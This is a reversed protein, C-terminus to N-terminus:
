FNDTSSSHQQEQLLRELERRDLQIVISKGDGGRAFPLATNRVKHQRKPRSKPRPSKHNAQPRYNRHENSDSKSSSGNGSRPPPTNAGYIRYIANNETLSKVSSTKTSKSDLSEEEESLKQERELAKERMQDEHIMSCYTFYLRKRYRWTSNYLAAKFKRNDNIFNYVPNTMLRLYLQVFLFFLSLFACIRILTPNRAGYILEENYGGFDAALTFAANLLLFVCTIYQFLLQLRLLSANKTIISVIFLVKMSFFIAIELLTIFLILQVFSEEKSEPLYISFHILNLLLCLICFVFEIACVVLGWSRTAPVADTRWFFPMTYKPSSSDFHEPGVLERVELPTNKPWVFEIERTDSLVKWIYTLRECFTHNGNLKLTSYHKSELSEIDVSDQDVVTKKKNERIYQMVDDDETATGRRRNNSRRGTSISNRPTSRPNKLPQQTIAPPNQFSEQPREERLQVSPCEDHFKISGRKPYLSPLKEELIRARNEFGRPDIVRTSLKKTLKPTTKPTANPSTRPSTQLISLPDKNYIDRTLPKSEFYDYLIGSHEQKRRDEPISRTPSNLRKSRDFQDPYEQYATEKLQGQYHVFQRQQASAQQQIRPNPTMSSFAQHKITSHGNNRWSPVPSEEFPASNDLRSPYRRM